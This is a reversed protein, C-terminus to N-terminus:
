GTRSALKSAPLSAYCHSQKGSTKLPGEYLVSTLLFYFLNGALRGATGRRVEGEAFSETCHHGGRTQVTEQIGGARAEGLISERSSAQCYLM